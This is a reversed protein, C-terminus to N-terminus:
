KQAELIITESIWRNNREAAQLKKALELSGCWGANDWKTYDTEDVRQIRDARVAALYEDLTKGVAMKGYVSDSPERQYYEWNSKDYAYTAEAEQMAHERSYRVLVTHTYARESTRTHTAGTPDVVFYKTKAM